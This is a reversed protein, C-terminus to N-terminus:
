RRKDTTARTQGRRNTGSAEHIDLRRNQVFLHFRAVQGIGKRGDDAPRQRIHAIAELWDMPPNKEGHVADPRFRRRAEDFRCPYHPLHDTLVMRVAIGGYVVGHHAHGLVEREAVWQHVAM